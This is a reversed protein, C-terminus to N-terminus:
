TVVFVICLALALGPGLAMYIGLQAFMLLAFAAIM